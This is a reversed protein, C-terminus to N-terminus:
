IIYDFSYILTKIIINYIVQDVRRVSEVKKVVNTVSQDEYFTAITLQLSM